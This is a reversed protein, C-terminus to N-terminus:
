PTLGRVKMCLIVCCVQEATWGGGVSEVWSQVMKGGEEVLWGGKLFDDGKGTESKYNELEVWRSKGKVEGFIGDKHPRM